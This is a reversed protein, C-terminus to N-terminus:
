YKDYYPTNKIGQNNLKEVIYDLLKKWFILFWKQNGFLKVMTPSLRYYCRIFLRGYWIEDLTYDRFRRLTWVQPCEYSGYVCTAIYCGSKEKQHSQLSNKKTEALEEEYFAYREVPLNNIGSGKYIQVNKPLTINLKNCGEFAGSNYNVEDTESDRFRNSRIEKLNKPINIESLSECGQFTGQEIIEIYDSLVVKELNSCGWFANSGIKKVGNAMIVEKLRRCGAFAGNFYNIPQYYINHLPNGGEIEEVTEPIYVTEIDTNTFSNAAIVTVDSPIIINASKGKYKILKKAVIEFDQADNIINVVSANIHNTVYYNNIAKETIFATGCYECIGAEKTDDVKINGGCQPCQAPVLAM